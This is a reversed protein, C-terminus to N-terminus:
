FFNDQNKAIEPPIAWSSDKYWACTSGMESRRSAPRVSQTINKTEKNGNAHKGTSKEPNPVTITSERPPTRTSKQGPHLAFSFCKTWHVWDIHILSSYKSFSGSCVSFQQGVTLGGTRNDYAPIEWELCIQVSLSSEPIHPPTNYLIFHIEFIAGILSLFKKLPLTVIELHRYVPFTSGSFFQSLM